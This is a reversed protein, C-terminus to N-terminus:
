CPHDGQVTGWYSLAPYTGRWRVTQRAFFDGLHEMGTMSIIIPNELSSRLCRWRGGINGVHESRDFVLTRGHGTVVSWYGWFDVLYDVRVQVFPELCEPHLVGFSADIIHKVELGHLLM